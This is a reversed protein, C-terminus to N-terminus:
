RKPRSLTRTPTVGDSPRDKEPLLIAKVRIRSMSSNKSYGIKATLTRLPCPPPALASVRCTALDIPATGTMVVALSERPKGETSSMPRSHPQFISFLESRVRTAAATTPLCVTTTQCSAPRRSQYEANPSQGAFKSCISEQGGSRWPAASAILSRHKGRPPHPGVM